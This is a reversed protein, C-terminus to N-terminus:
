SGAAGEAMAQAIEEITGDDVRCAVGVGDRLGYRVKGRGVEKEGAM